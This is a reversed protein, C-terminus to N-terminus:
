EYGNRKQKHDKNMVIQVFDCVRYSFANAVHLMNTGRHKGRRINRDEVGGGKEREEEM